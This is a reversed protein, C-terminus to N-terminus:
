DPLPCPSEGELKEKNWEMVTQLMVQENRALTAAEEAVITPKGDKLEVELPGGPAFMSVGLPRSIQWCHIQPADEKKKAKAGIKKIAGMMAQLLDEKITDRAFLRLDDDVEYYEECQSLVDEVIHTIIKFSPFTM